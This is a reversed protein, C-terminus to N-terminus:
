EKSQEQTTQAEEKKEKELERKVSEIAGTAAASAIKIMKNAIDLLTSTLEKAKEVPVHLPSKEEMGVKEKLAKLERELKEIEERINMQDKEKEEM